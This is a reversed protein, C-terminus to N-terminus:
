GARRQEAVVRPAAGGAMAVERVQPYLRDVDEMVLAHHAKKLTPGPAVGLEEKLLRCGEYYTAFAEARRDCRYLAVMLQARFGERLPYAITLHALESTLLSHRGLALDAEIRNELAEMRAMEIRPGSRESLMETVDALTPGRWLGLATHFLDAAPGPDGERIATRGARCLEEFERLDFRASGLKLAYGHGRRIIRTDGHLNKRLRSAYTYIQAQYTAPPTEDWLLEGLKSDSIGWEGALLLAALITREKDGRLSIETGGSWIGVPGLIRLEL